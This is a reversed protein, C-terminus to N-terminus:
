GRSQRDIFDQFKKKRLIEYSRSMSKDKLNKLKERQSKSLYCPHSIEMSPNTIRKTKENKEPPSDYYSTGKGELRRRRDERKEKDEVADYFEPLEDELFKNIFDILRKQYMDEAFQESATTDRAEEHRIEAPINFDMDTMNNM